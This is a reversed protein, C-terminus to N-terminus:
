KTALNRRLQTYQDSTLKLALLVFQDASGYTSELYDLASDFDAIVRFGPSEKLLQVVGRRFLPHDDVVVAHITSASTIDTANM